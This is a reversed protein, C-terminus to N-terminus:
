AISYAWLATIKATATRAVGPYTPEHLAARRRVHHQSDTGPTMRQGVDGSGPGCAASASGATGSRTSVCWPPATNAMFTSTPAGEEGLSLRGGGAAGSPGVPFCTGTEEQYDEFMFTKYEVCVEGSSMGGSATESCCIITPGFYLVSTSPLTTRVSM